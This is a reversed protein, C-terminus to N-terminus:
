KNLSLKWCGESHMFLLNNSNPIEVFNGGSLPPIDGNFVTEKFGNSSPYNWTSLM